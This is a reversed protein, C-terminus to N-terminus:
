LYRVEITIDLDYFYKYIIEQVKGWQLRDLGCGLKPIALYKVDHRTCFEAMQCICIELSSYTPKNWYKEKTILNFVRLKGNSFCPITKPYDYNEGNIKNILFSKMGNFKKDFTKAIGKGMNCDLSICHAYVYKDNDLKFLDGKEINLIM